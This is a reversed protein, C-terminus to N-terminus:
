SASSSALAAASVDILDYPIGKAGTVEKLYRPIIRVVASLSQVATTLFRCLDLFFHALSVITSSLSPAYALVEPWIYNVTTFNTNNKSDSVHTILGRM